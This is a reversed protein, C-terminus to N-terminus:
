LKYTIQGAKVTCHLKFVLHKTKLTMPKLVYM